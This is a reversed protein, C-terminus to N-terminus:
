TILNFSFIIFSIECAWFFMILWDINKVWEVLDNWKWDPLKGIKLKITLKM